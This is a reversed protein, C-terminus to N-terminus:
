GRGRGGVVVAALVAEIASTAEDRGFGRERLRGPGNAGRRRRGEPDGLAERVAAELAPGDDVPVVWGVAEDVVEPIGAVPTTVVPVGAALAELIVVPLGDMDGDPAPRCPLVLLAAGRLAALVEAHPRLGRVDVGPLPPADGYLVARMPVGDATLSAVMAAFRDLGKKPVWRGVALVVPDGGDGSGGEGDVVVGCRVLAAAIGYRDVLVRQNFVSVTVVSAASRLLMGLDARPRFLDVAHVTVSWPVGVRACAEAAWAAGDGAFHVHVQRAGTERLLAALWLVRTSVWGPRRLWEVTVRGLWALWGWRHPRAHVPAPDPEGSPERPDFAAIEVRHGRAVLGRIEDRVFTETATPYYRLVYLVQLPAVSM